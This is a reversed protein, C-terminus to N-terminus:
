WTLGLQVRHTSEGFQGPRNGLERTFYAYDAKIFLLRVGLGVTPYGQHFGGRLKFIHALFNLEAGFNIRQALGVGQRNFLDTIDLGLEIPVPTSNEPLKTFAGIKVVPKIGEEYSQLLDQVTFGIDIVRYEYLGGIDLALGSSTDDLEELATTFVEELRETDFASVRITEINRRTVFKISAGIDFEHGFRETHTGYGISFVNDSYGRMAVAPIFIGQDVKVDAQIVNYWGLGFGKVTLGLYPTYLLSVWKNDFKASQRIFESQEQSSLQGFNEFEDAHDDIFNIVEFIDDDMAGHIPLIDLKFTQRSLLAPNYFLAHTNGGVAVSVGGMGMQRIDQHPTLGTPRFREGGYVTIFLMLLIAIIRVLYIM